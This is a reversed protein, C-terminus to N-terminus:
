MLFFSINLPQMPVIPGVSSLLARSITFFATLATSHILTQVPSLPHILYNPKSQLHVQLVLPLLIKHYILHLLYPTMTVLPYLLPSRKGFKSPTSVTSSCILIARLFCSNIFIFVILQFPKFYYSM